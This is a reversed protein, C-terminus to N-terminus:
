FMPNFLFSSSATPGLFIKRNSTPKPSQPVTAKKQNLQQPDEKLKSKQTTM